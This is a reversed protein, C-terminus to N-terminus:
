ESKKEARDEDDIVKLKARTRSAAESANRSLYSKLLFMLTDRRADRLARQRERALREAQTKLYDREAKSEKPEETRPFWYYIDDRTLTRHIEFSLKEFSITELERLHDELAPEIEPLRGTDEYLSAMYYIVRDSKLSAFAREYIALAEAYRRNKRYFEALNMWYPVLAPHLQDSVDIFPQFKYGDGGPVRLDM